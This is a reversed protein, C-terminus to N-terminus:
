IKVKAQIEAIGKFVRERLDSILAPNFYHQMFVGNTVRGHLFDIEEKKLYQIMFTGHAERIDSFRLPLGQKSLRKSVADTSVYPQLQAIEGVLECPVFSVFAKKSKRLFLEKFRFHELTSAEAKFYSGLKGHEHLDIQLNYSNVAESLRLGTVALLDLLETLGPYVDKAKKIWRWVEEPDEVKTFRDIFIQDPNRGGWKLGYSKVLVRFDDHLGLFKSLSALAGMANPRMTDNLDRVVSLDRKFLADQYRKANGVIQRAVRPRHDREVFRTFNAWDVPMSGRQRGPNLDRCGCEEATLKPLASILMKLYNECAQSVNIGRQKAEKFVTEDITVSVKRKM